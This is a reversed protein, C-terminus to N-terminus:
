AMIKAFTVGSFIIVKGGHKGAFKKAEAMKDFVFAEKGMPGEQNSGVVYYAAKGGIWAGSSYDVM